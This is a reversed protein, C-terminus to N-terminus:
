KIGIYDFLDNGKKNMASVGLSIAGVEVLSYTIKSWTDMSAFFGATNFLPIAGVIGAIGIAGYVFRKIKM